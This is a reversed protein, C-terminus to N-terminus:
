IIEGIENLNVLASVPIKFKKEFDKYAEGRTVIAVIGLLEIKRRIFTETVVTIIKATSVVDDLLIVRSDSKIGKFFIERGHPGDAKVEFSEPDNESFYDKRGLAMDLGCANAVLMGWAAGIETVTVIFDPKESIRRVKDVLGNKIEEILERKLNTGSEGFQFLRFPYKKKDNGVWEFLDSRKISGLLLPYSNRM